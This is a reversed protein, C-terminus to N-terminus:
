AEDVYHGEGVMIFAVLTSLNDQIVLEVAEDKALRIAVGIKNQGAFTLRGAVGNVAAPHTPDFFDVDYMIAKFQGNSKVNTINFYTGDANKKRLVVGRTLLPIDGFDTYGAAGTSVITFIVRTLDIEADYRNAFSYIVPTTAGNVNMQITVKSIVHNTAPDFVVDLPTDMTLTNSSVSIIDAIYNAPSAGGQFLGISDGTVLGTADTLEITYTGPVTASALVRSAELAKTFCNMILRTTQDQVNVDLGSAIIEDLKALLRADGQINKNNYMDKSM